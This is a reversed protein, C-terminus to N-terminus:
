TSLIIVQDDQLCVASLRDSRYAGTDCAIRNARIDIENVISHGHVVVAGHWESSDTFESRISFLDERKQRAIAVGPRVGAHAFFYSGSRCSVDLSRLYAIHHPPLTQELREAFDFDDEHPLPPAIDYSRLTALGGNELWAKRAEGNGDITALMMDEHNGLLMEAGGLDSLQIIKELCKASAPGRDIVDGLFLLRVRKPKPRMTRYQKAIIKLLKVLLDNRGHVDGIAYIREGSATRPKATRLFDLVRMIGIHVDYSLKDPFFNEDDPVRMRLRVRMTVRAGCVPVPRGSTLKAM